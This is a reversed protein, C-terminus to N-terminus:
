GKYEPHYNTNARHQSCPYYLSTIPKVLLLNEGFSIVQDNELGSLRWANKKLKRTGANWRHCSERFMPFPKWDGNDQQQM